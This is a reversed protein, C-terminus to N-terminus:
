PTEPDPEADRSRLSGMTQSEHMFSYQVPVDLGYRDVLSRTTELLWHPAYPSVVVNQILAALDVHVGRVSEIEEGPLPTYLSRLEDDNLKGTINSPIQVARIEKEHAFAYSKTLYPYPPVAIDDTDYRGGPPIYVVRHVRTAPNTAVQARLRGVTSTVALTEEKVAYLRWHADSELENEYWCNAFTKARVEAFWRALHPDGLFFLGGFNAENPDDFQDLRAFHLSSTSLLSVFKAVSMFRRISTEDPPDDDPPPTNSFYAPTMKMKRSPRTATTDSQRPTILSKFRAHHTRQLVAGAFHMILNALVQIRHTTARQTKAAM